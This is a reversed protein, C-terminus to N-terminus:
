LDSNPIVSNAQDMDVFEFNSTDDQDESLDPLFPAQIEKLHLKNFDIDSFWPHEIIEKMSGKTGLRQLPDKELLGEILDKLDDSMTIKHKEPDPFRVPFKEILEYM